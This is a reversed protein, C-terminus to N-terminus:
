SDSPAWLAHSRSAADRLLDASLEVHSLEVDLAPWDVFVRMPGPPPLPWLWFGPSMTVRGSGASGGGGGHHMLVSGQPEVDPRLFRHNPTLNSVRAGDALEFGIRLFADPPEEEDGILHQEHFLRNTDRERLGRAVALLDFTVGTTYATAHRIAVLAKDSRAAVISLPICEGLEDDPPGFWPPPTFDQLPESDGSGRGQSFIQVFGGM